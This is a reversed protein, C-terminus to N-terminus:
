RHYEHRIPVDFDLDYALMQMKEKQELTMTSEIYLSNYVAFYNIFVILCYGSFTSCRMVYPWVFRAFFPSVIFVWVSGFSLNQSRPQVPKQASTM